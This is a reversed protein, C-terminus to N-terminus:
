MLDAIGRSQGIKRTTSVVKQHFLSLTTFNPLLSEFQSIKEKLLRQIHKNM